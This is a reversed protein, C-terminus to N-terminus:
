ARGGVFLRASSLHEILEDGVAAWTRGEIAVRGAAGLLARREPDGVLEAIAATFGDAEFPPVLHGTRGEHVLDLPGGAAPAVVPLGSAMAEQISQGFTEYPGTHAFVDLSAYIRALQEGHRAGLFVADPLARRLHAGHPGDGVVVLRVGPLRSADALLDVQKEVALRGVFGVLTEGNPALARRIGTSRKAPHFRVDDVGRRWLHMRKVGHADLAALSERSPVLTRAASNHITRIISWCMQETGGFYKYLRAYAAIDTQYVAVAPLKLMKAAVAGWAGLFFPSALHVVDTGHARLAAAISTTPLGLRIQPYGPMRLSAIRVVPYPLDVPSRRGPPQPAIVLPEHGRRMLHEAARVVSHAVGNVDPLFSETVLAIRM